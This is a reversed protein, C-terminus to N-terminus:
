LAHCVEEYIREAVEPSSGEGSVRVIGDGPLGQVRTFGDHVRELFGPRGEFRDEGAGLRRRCDELPVELVLHLHPRRAGLVRECLEAARAEGLGGAIGQYVLTSLYYRDSIVVSGGELAPRICQEYLQVRSALFLLLEAEVTIPVEHKKLLISRVEEGLPTGGPERVMVAARGGARLRKALLAVQTSKGAGDVGEIAIFFGDSM